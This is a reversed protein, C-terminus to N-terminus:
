KVTAEQLKEYVAPIDDEPKGTISFMETDIRCNVKPCTIVRGNCVFAVHKGINAETFDAWILAAKKTLRGSIAYITDGTANDTSIELHLDKFDDPTVVAKGTPNMDKDTAYWGCPLHNGTMSFSVTFVTVTLILLLLIRLKM